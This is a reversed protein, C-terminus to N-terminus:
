EEFLKDLPMSPEYGCIGSRPSNALPLLYHEEEENEENHYKEACEDCVLVEREGSCGVCVLTAQVGCKQCNSPPLYNRAVLEIRKDDDLECNTYGVAEIILETSSGFDYIYGISDGPQLTEMIIRRKAVENGYNGFLSLHGCCEVWVDRILKDLDKLKAKENVEVILWFNPMCPAAVRLRLNKIKENRKRKECSDLHRIIERKTFEQRCFRCQGEYKRSNTQTKM